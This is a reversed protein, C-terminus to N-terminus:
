LSMDLWSMDIVILGLALWISLIIIYLGNQLLVTMYESLHCM